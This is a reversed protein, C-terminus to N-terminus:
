EDRERKITGRQLYLDAAGKSGYLGQFSITRYHGHLLATRRQDPMLYLDHVAMGFDSGRFGTDQCHHSRDDFIGARLIFDRPSLCLCAAGHFIGHDGGSFLRVAELLVM